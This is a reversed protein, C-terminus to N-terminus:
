DPFSNLFLVLSDIERCSVRNKHLLGGRLWDSAAPSVGIGVKSPRRRSGPSRSAAPSLPLGLRSQSSGGAGAGRDGGAHCDSGRGSPGSGRPAPLRPHPHPSGKVGTVGVLTGEGPTRRRPGLREEEAAREGSFSVELTGWLGAGTM